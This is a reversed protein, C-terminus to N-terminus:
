KLDGGEEDKEEEEVVEEEKGKEKEYLVRMNRERDQQLPLLGFLQGFIIYISLMYPTLRTLILIIKSAAVRM